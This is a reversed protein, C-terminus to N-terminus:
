AGMMGIVIFLAGSLLAALLAYPLQTAVHDMHDSGAGFSSLCTTDSVPSCHDGFLGGGTVAGITALVLPNVVGGSLSMAVPLVFPTLIAYTGWSTGTFFSILAGTVFTIFPLMGSTMWGETLSIIFQQAGLSKSVTNICYALALILIAPMVAKIGNVAVDMGDKVSRFYGGLAMVVAQYMVAIFFAELIKTSGMVLFTGLAVAIVILVPTLLYVVLHPKKGPLPKILDMEEGTLPTAGDRIVKGERLAREEAKKMPGFNPVIGFAILGALIVAFWGYFNYPISQIFVKMGEDAGGIPGYGKLLGAIYVAWGTLPVLTCVPASGSDLLYALMERSVKHKDTLPRAIPGSFLPSFYDSFFIFIGLLWGFASAARRTRVRTGAKEAFAAIVGARLYFAVMIGVAIEIMMVWIFDGNGLANQFLKSLGTAPDFGAIVVGVICGILLSFVADKTRFALFLALVVPVLSLAGKAAIDGM